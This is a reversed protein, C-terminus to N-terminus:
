KLRQADYLRYKGAPQFPIGSLSIHAAVTPLWRQSIAVMTGPEAHSLQPLQDLGFSELQRPHVGARLEPTLYFIVSAVREEMLLVRPPLRGSRNLAVALDRASFQIAVAPLVVTMIVAFQLGMALISAALAQEGRGDKGLWRPMWLAVAALAVALWGWPSIHLDLTRAVAVVVAPLVLPSIWAMNRFARGLAVRAPATLSGDLLRGWGLASLIALPPFVPWIYTVLKSHSASLFLTCGCLWCLLLVIADADRSTSHPTIVAENGTGEGRAVARRKSWADRLTVPLFGIWPLGGALVIPLYFWFPETGHNQTSTAFGLLHRQIFYYYLYGPNKAEMALYWSAAVFAAIAVAALARACIAWTLRRTLLLYSGYAVGVLAIGVLGKALCTLGLLAGIALTYCTRARRSAAWQSEWFFGIALSIWPVLAVDHAPSQTLAMPLVTTAYFMGAILGVRRNFIRAAVIATSLAALLGLMLGPLRVAAEHMGFLRLSFAECWFYLIPKDLFPKGLLTPTIWHGREVMEQAISAHLGEDPDMLATGLLLPFVFVLLALPLAM